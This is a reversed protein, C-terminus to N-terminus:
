EIIGCDDILVEKIPGDYMDTKLAEIKKLLSM